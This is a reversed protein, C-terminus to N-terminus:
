KNTDEPASDEPRSRLYSLFRYRDENYKEEFDQANGYLDSSLLLAYPKLADIHSFIIRLIALLPISLIIGAIGWLYAGLILSFIAALPNLKVSSGIIKPTIVNGELQQVVFYFVVVSLPQWYNGTTALAYAFPLLGGLLTGIYPVIALVGGLFGWFLPYQIGIVWLGLSNLTSLILIVSLMGYLYRENMNQVKMLIERAENQIQGGFQHIMFSKFSKRYLLIFYTYLATIFVSTLVVSSTTLGAQVTDILGSVGKILWSEGEEKLSLPANLEVIRILSQIGEKIKGTINPFEDVVDKFQIFFLYFLLTIPMLATLFTVVVSLSNWPLWRDYWNCLPRLMISFIVAFVIPKLISQASILLLIFLTIIIMVAAIRQFNITTKM